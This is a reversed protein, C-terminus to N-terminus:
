VLGFFEDKSLPSVYTHVLQASALIDELLASLQKSM